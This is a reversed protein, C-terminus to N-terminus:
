RDDGEVKGAAISWGCQRLYDLFSGAQVRWDFQETKEMLRRARQERDEPNELLDIIARAFDFVEGAPVIVAEEPVYQVVFPVLDSCVVATGSAAAQLVSMGFGEMESATVYIDALSFLPGIFEEPIFGTLFARGALEPKGELLRELKEFLKNRPGGGIFLLVDDRERAVFTFADLLVDKRKSQDMRSTEFVIKYERLREPDIGSVKALYRLADETQEPPRPRFVKRDVCPPFYFIRETDVRYHTLLREAIETSTAAFAQTRECVSREHNRRECFKLKRKVEAHKDRFNDEKLAGLSHPTWVHRDTDSLQADLLEAREPDLELVATGLAEAAALAHLAPALRDRVESLAYAVAGVLRDVVTEDSCHRVEVWKTAITRARQLLPTAPSGEADLLLRGLHYAPAEGLAMWHRDRGVRELTDSDVVGDLLDKMFDFAVDNKWREVLRVGLVAADWYHTNVVEFLEWGRCGQRRAEGEIFEYLWDLQEDLAVAIDEKRIFEDGGGPVYVYRVNDTLFETGERIRDSDFFPFGGRAFITVRYGLDDLAMALQNVYVNQGGTDPAGGIPIEVGAYGHNTILAIQPRSSEAFRKNRDSMDVGQNM